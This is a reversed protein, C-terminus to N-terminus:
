HWNNGGKVPNHREGSDLFFASRVPVVSFVWVCAFVLCSDTRGFSGCCKGNQKSNKSDFVHLGDRDRHV